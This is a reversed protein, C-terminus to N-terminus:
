ATSHAVFNFHFILLINGGSRRNNSLAGLRPGSMDWQSIFLNLFQQYLLALIKSTKFSKNWYTKFKDLEWCSIIPGINPASDFLLHDPPVQLDEIGASINM